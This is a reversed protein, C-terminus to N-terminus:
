ISLICTRTFGIENITLCVTLLSGPTTSPSSPITVIAGITTDAHAPAAALPVLAGFSAATGVLFMALRRRM